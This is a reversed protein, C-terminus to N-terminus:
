ILTIRALWQSIYGGSFYPPHNSFSSSLNNLRSIQQKSKRELKRTKIEVRSLNSLFSLLVNLSINNNWTRKWKNKNWSRKQYIISVFIALNAFQTSISLTAWWSGGWRSRCQKGEHRQVGFIIYSPSLMRKQKSFKCVFIKEDAKQDLWTLIMKNRPVWIVIHSVCSDVCVYLLVYM